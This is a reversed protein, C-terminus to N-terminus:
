TSVTLPAATGRLHQRHAVPGLRVSLPQLLQDLGLEAERGQAVLVGRGSQTVQPPVDETHQQASPGRLTQARRVRVHPAHLRRASQPQAEVQWGGQPRQRQLRQARGGGLRALRRGQVVTQRQHARQRATRDASPQGFRLVRRALDPEQDHVGRGVAPFQRDALLFHGM